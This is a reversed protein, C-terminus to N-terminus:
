SGPTMSALVQGRREQETVLEVRLLVRRGLLEDPGDVALKLYNDTLAVLAGDSRRRHRLVVASREHGLQSEVFARESAAVQDRLIRSRRAAVEPSVRDGLLAAPTGRRPSWVFVHAFPIACTEFLALSREFAAETEGPFGLIVDTGLGINPALARLRPILQDLDAVRHARRMARLIGDDGSQVPLHIHQCLGAGSEDTGQGLLAALEDDVEHPDVSGLRLRASPHDRLLGALLTALSQKRAGVGQTERASRSDRGWAGLHAGTLVVEPAGADVLAGLQESALEPPASRSRGRVQPVICFSCQYDCGDQVKLLPRTRAPAEAPPAVWPRPRLRRTLREVAVLPAPREVVGELLDLLEPGRKEVNGIVADLEPMAALQEPEANAHCGTIVVRADPNRRRARRIAARADADAAHTIACSNLVYLEADELAVQRHGRARLQEAIADSEAQNLRCGHTEVAFRM